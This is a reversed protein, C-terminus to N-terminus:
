PCAPPGLPQAGARNLLASKQARVEEKADGKSSSGHKQDLGSAAEGPAWPTPPPPAPWLGQSASCSSKAGWPGQHSM